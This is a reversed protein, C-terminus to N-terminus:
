KGICSKPTITEEDRVEKLSSWIFLGKAKNALPCFGCDIEILFLIM